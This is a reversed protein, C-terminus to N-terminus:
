IRVFRFQGCGTTDNQCSPISRNIIHLISTHMPDSQDRQIRLNTWIILGFGIRLLFFDIRDSGFNFFDIRIRDSSSFDIWIRESGFNFFDIRDSGIRFLYILDSGVLLQFNTIRDSGIRRMNHILNDTLHIM